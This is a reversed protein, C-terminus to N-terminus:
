AWTLRQNARTTTSVGSRQRNCTPVKAGSGVVVVEIV